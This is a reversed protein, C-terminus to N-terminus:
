RTYNFCIIVISPNVRVFLRQGFFFTCIYLSLHIRSHTQAYTADGFREKLQNKLLSCQKVSFPSFFSPATLFFLLSTFCFLFFHLKSRKYVRRQSVLDVITTVESEILQVWPSSLVVVGVLFLDSWVKTVRLCTFPFAYTVLCKAWICLFFSLNM